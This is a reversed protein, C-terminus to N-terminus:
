SNTTISIFILFCKNSLDISPWSNLLSNRNVNRICWVREVTLLILLSVTYSFFICATHTQLFGYQFRGKFRHLLVEPKLCSNVPWLCKCKIEAHGMIAFTNATVSAQVKPNNFHIVNGDDRIM